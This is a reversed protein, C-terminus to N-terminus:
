CWSALIQYSFTHVFKMSQWKQWIKVMKLTPSKEQLNFLRRQVACAVAYIASGLYSNNTRSGRRPPPLQRLQEGQNRWQRTNVM